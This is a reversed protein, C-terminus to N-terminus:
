VAPFPDFWEYLFDWPCFWQASTLSFLLVRMVVIDDATPEYGYQALYEPLFDYDTDNALAGTIMFRARSGKFKQTPPRTGSVFLLFQWGSFDTLEGSYWNLYVGTSFATNPEVSWVPEDILTLSCTQLISLGALLRWCNIRIFLAHGSLEAEPNKKSYQPYTSAFNDWSTVQVSSLSKYSKTVRALIVKRAQQLPSVPLVMRPKRKVTFGYKNGQFTTGAISGRISDVLGSYVIRAM